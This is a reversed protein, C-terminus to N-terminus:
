VDPDDEPVVHDRELVVAERVPRNGIPAADGEELSDTWRWGLCVAGVGKGIGERVEECVIGTVHRHRTRRRASRLAPDRRTTIFPDGTRTRADARELWGGRPHKLLRPRNMKHRAQAVM